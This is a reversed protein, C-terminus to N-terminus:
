KGDWRKFILVANQGGFGFSNSMAYDFEFDQAKNPVYDLDCEPDPNEYNITPPVQQRKLALSTAAAECAGAAGLLHGHMSKTSSVKMKYAHDGFVTKLAETETKDNFPTSTGHANVYRIQEPKIGADKIARNIALVAGAGGPSPATLHYADASAGYGVVEAYIKADRKLAFDLEELVLISAGEAMVFGDRMKDFPRSAKEPEDNHTTSLANMSCFGSVGLYNITAESGGVIMADCSDAQIEKYGLGLAHASTACATVVCMNPGKAGTDIAIHGAAMNSIVSTIFFASVRHHQGKNETEVVKRTEDLFTSLGGIGSGVYVGTREAFDNTIKLGADKMAIKNAAYALQCYRDMRRALRIDMFQNTDFDSVEGGIQAPLASADFLTLRRIGSKGSFIADEFKGNDAGFSTIIGMGTIVVRRM